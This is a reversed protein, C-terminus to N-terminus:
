RSTKGHRYVETRIFHPRAKVEEVIKRIYEGLIGISLIQLGGLGLILIILTTIGKPAHNGGFFYYGLYFLGLILSLVFVSLGLREIYDLPKSSFSFIGKKAWWINKLFSNTSRGFPREPRHYPVGIQRYGVWARIGRLFFDRERMGLIQDVVKRDVLSFDGADLPVPIDALARFLRYFAPYMWGMFLGTDRKIREGYIVDFGERWKEIFSEILEPPDQLDGDLFVVAGGTALEMGSRFASQSGFNRSHDVGIVRPDQDVLEWIVRRDEMPSADNVFILEYDVSCKTLTEVLRRYMIPIAEADKYCAIVASIKKFEQFAASNKKTGNRLRFKKEWELTAKLGDQFGISPKWGLYQQLKTVNAYWKTVDWHRQRMSGYHPRGEIPLLEAMAQTVESIKTEAGTGVNVIEGSKQSCLHVAARTCARLADDIYVFDRGTEPGVLPPFEGNLGFEIMKPILRGPDEWPGYVSYLRLHIAPVGRQKGFYKILESGAVKSLAYDSNPKLESDEKPGASNLGYESSTGANVFARVPHATMAKLLKQLGQVNVQNMREANRQHEYAGHACFNFITQPKLSKFLSDVLGPDTIDFHIFNKSQIEEPLYSLRWSENLNIGCAYVDSRVKLLQFAMNSGIFGGAGLVAIPGPLSQM